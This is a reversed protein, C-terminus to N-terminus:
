PKRAHFYLTTFATGEEEIDFGAAALMERWPEPRQSPHHAMVPSVLWTMWDVRVLSILLEGRPKLVRAAERLAVARDDRRLHDIAYSSVVADFEADGFPLHRMDGRVAHARGAVGAARANAMFREPTNGEIGWYGEYIDLATLTTEPRALLVGLGARGSGAGLDLVRGAGAGLFRAAPPAMPRNLGLGYELLAFSAASWAGVVIAIAFLWRPWRLVATVAALAVAFVLPFVHGYTLFWPYGFDYASFM